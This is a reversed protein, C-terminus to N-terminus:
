SDNKEISRVPAGSGVAPLPTGPTVVNSKIAYSSRWSIHNDYPHKIFTDLDAVYDSSSPVKYLYKSQYRNEDLLKFDM